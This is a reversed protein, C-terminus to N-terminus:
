FLEKLNEYLQSYKNILPQYLQHMREDPAFTVSPTRAKKVKELRDIERLSYSEAMALLADGFSADIGRYVHQKKGTIDSIIQMLSHDNTLGGMAKLTDSAQYVTNLKDLLLGVEYGIAERAAYSFEKKGTKRDVGFFVGKALPNDFPVRAGDLYPLILIGTPLDTGNISYSEGILQDMWDIFRAGSSSAGGLRYTNELISMGPNFGKLTIYREITLLSSITSGYVFVLDGPNIAGIAMAEANIDCAGLIVSTGPKLGTVEAARPRVEGAKTIPWNFSPIKAQDLGNENLIKEPVNMTTFDVLRTGAATPFDWCATGTLRATVFNSSAVFYRCKQYLDPHNEKLWLFKPIVSHTNFLGGLHERLYEEGYKNNLFAVQQQARTDIGYLIANSLPNFNQDVPVFSGCVSSICVAKVASIDVETKLEACLSCFGQWWTKLSDIEYFGEAPNILQVPIRRTFLINAQEDIVMAKISSTGMDVGLFYSM